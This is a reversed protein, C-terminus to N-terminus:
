LVESRVSRYDIGCAECLTSVCHFVMDMGCGGVVMGRDKALKYGLIISAYGTLWVPQNDKIIYLDINRSMGSASVHRVIGYITEVGQLMTKVKEVAQARHLRKGEAQSLQKANPYYKPDPTHFVIGGSYQMYYTKM